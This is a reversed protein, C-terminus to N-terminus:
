GRGRKRVITTETHKALLSALEFAFDTTAADPVVPLEVEGALDWPLITAFSAHKIKAAQVANDWGPVDGVRVPKHEEEGGLLFKRILGELSTEYYDAFRQAVEIGIKPKARLVDSFTRQDLKIGRKQAVVAAASQTGHEELIAKAAAVVADRLKPPMRQAM